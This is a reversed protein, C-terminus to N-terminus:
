SVSKFIHCMPIFIDFNYWFTNFVHFGKGKDFNIFSSDLVTLREVTGTEAIDAQAKESLQDFKLQAYYSLMLLDERTVNVIQKGIYPFLSM